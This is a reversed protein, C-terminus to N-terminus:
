LLLSEFKTNKPSKNLKLSRIKFTSRRKKSGLFHRDTWWIWPDRRRNLQNKLLIKNQAVTNWINSQYHLNHLVTSCGCSMIKSWPRVIVIFTQYIQLRITLKFILGYLVFWLVLWYGTTGYRYKCKKFTQLITISM